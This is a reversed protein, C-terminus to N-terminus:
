LQVYVQTHEYRFNETTKPVTKGYLGITIRGLEEDGHTVDFYV